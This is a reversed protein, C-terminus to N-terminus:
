IQCNFHIIVKDQIDKDLDCDLSAEWENIIARIKRM